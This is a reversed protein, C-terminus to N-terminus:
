YLLSKKKPKFSQFKKFGEGNQTAVYLYVFLSISVFIFLFISLLCSFSFFFSLCVFLFFFFSCISFLSLSFLFLSFSFFFFLFFYNHNCHGSVSNGTSRWVGVSQFASRKHWFSDATETNLQSQGSTPSLSVLVRWFLWVFFVVPVKIRGWFAFTGLFTSNICAHM